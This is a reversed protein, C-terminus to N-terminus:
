LLIYLVYNVCLRKVSALRNRAEVGPGLRTPAVGDPGEGERPREAVSVIGSYTGVITAAM